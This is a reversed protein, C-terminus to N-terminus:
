ADCIGRLVQWTSDDLAPAMDSPTEEGLPLGVAEAYPSWALRAGNFRSRLVEAVPVDPPALLLREMHATVTRPPVQGSALIRMLDTARVGSLFSQLPPNEAAAEMAALLHGGAVDPDDQTVLVTDSLVMLGGPLLLAAEPLDRLVELRVPTTPFLRDRLTSLAERGTITECPPGTLLTLEALMMQGIEARKAAPIVNAAHDRLAGPLWILGLGLAFGATLGTLVRRLRGPRQRGKDVADMVRALADIMEPEAIELEEGARKAPAYLAPTAGPNRRVLAPLSWHSLPEGARSQIVLEANGISVYVEQRQAGKEPRWLAPAELRDLGDLATTM